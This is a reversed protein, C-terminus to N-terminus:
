KTKGGQSKILILETENNTQIVVTGDGKGEFHANPYKKQQFELERVADSLTCDNLTIEM